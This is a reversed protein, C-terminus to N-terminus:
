SGSRKLKRELAKGSNVVRSGYGKMRCETDNGLCISLFVCVSSVPVSV